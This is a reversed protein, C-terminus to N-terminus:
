LWYSEHFKKRANKIALSSLSPITATKGRLQPKQEGQSLCPEKINNLTHFFIPPTPHSLHQRPGLKGGEAYWTEINGVLIETDKGHSM